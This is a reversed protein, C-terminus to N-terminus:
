FRRQVQQLEAMRKREAPQVQQNVSDPNAGYSDWAQSGVTQMRDYLDDMDTDSLGPHIAQLDEQLDERPSDSLAYRGFRLSTKLGGQDGLTKYIQTMGRKLADLDAGEAALECEVTTIYTPKSVDLVSGKMSLHYIRDARFDAPVYIPEGETDEGVKLEYKIIIRDLVGIKQHANLVATKLAGSAAQLRAFSEHDTLRLTKASKVIGVEDKESKVFWWYPLASLPVPKTSADFDGIDAIKLNGSLFDDLFSVQKDNRGLTVGYRAATDLMIGLNEQSPSFHRTPYVAWDATGGIHDPRDTNQAWDGEEFNSNGFFDQPTVVVTAECEGEEIEDNGVANVM